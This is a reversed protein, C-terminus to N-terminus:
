AGAGSAREVIVMAQEIKERGAPINLERLGAADVYIAKAFAEVHNWSVRLKGEEIRVVQKSDLGVRQALEAPTYGLETRLSHVIEGFSPLTGM